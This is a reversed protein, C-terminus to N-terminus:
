GDFNDRREMKRHLGSWVGTGFYNYLLLIKHIFITLFFFFFFFMQCPFFQDQLENLRLEKKKKGKNESCTAGCGGGGKLKATM